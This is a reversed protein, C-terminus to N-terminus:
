PRFSKRAREVRASEDRQKLDTVAVQDNYEVEYWKKMYDLDDHTVTVDDSWKTWGLVKKEIWRAQDGLIRIATDALVCFVIEDFTEVTDQGVTEHSPKTLGESDSANDTTTDDPKRSGIAVRVGEHKSRSLVEKVQTGLRVSVGKNELSTKWDAYIASAEPFVVMPPLNSTLMQPDVPYWMGYTSSTYLREMMVTPLDPTANGTGLFLALSPYIMCDIFEDSFFFMKLSVRIPILAFILEFWRLFKIVWSFRKIEKAHRQVLQTPYVNTWFTSDKGFAIELNVPEPRYNLKEFLYFTHHYIHSGGQVGQNLWNAGYKDNIPISFMQGGCENNAEMLTVHFRDPHQALISACSMGSAGAGVVLVRRSMNNPPLM